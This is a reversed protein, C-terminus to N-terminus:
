QKSNIYVVIASESGNHVMVGGKTSDIVRVGFRAFRNVVLVLDKKENNVHIVTELSFTWLADM